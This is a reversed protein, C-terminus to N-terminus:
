REPTLEFSPLSTAPEYVLARRVSSLREQGRSSGSGNSGHPSPPAAPVVPVRLNAFAARATMFAPPPPLGIGGANSNNEKNSTTSSSAVNVVNIAAGPPTHENASSSGASAHSSRAWVEFQEDITAHESTSALADSDTQSPVMNHRIPSSGGPLAIGLFHSSFPHDGASSVSKSSSADTFSRRVITEFEAPSADQLEEEMEGEGEMSSGTYTVASHDCQGMPHSPPQLPPPPHHLRHNHQKQEVIRSLLLDEHSQASVDSSDTSVASQAVAARVGRAQWAKESSPAAACVATAAQHRAVATGLTREVWAPRLMAAPPSVVRPPLPPLREDHLPLSEPLPSFPERPSFLGEPQERPSGFTGSGFSGTANDRTASLPPLTQQAPSQVPSEGLSDPLLAPPRANEDVSLPLPQGIGGTPLPLQQASRSDVLAQVASPPRKPKTQPSIPPYPLTELPPLAEAAVEADVEPDTTWSSEVSSWVKPPRWRDDDEAVPPAFSVEVESRPSFPTVPRFPTASRPAAGPAPTLPRAIVEMEAEAAAEAADQRAAVEALALSTNSSAVARWARKEAEVEAHVHAEYDAEAEAEREAEMEDAAAEVALMHAVEAIEQPTPSATRAKSHPSGTSLTLPAVKPSPPTRPPQLMLTRAAKAAAMELASRSRWTSAARRERARHLSRLARALSQQQWGHVARVLMAQSRTETRLFGRWRAVCGRVRKGFGDARARREIRQANAVIRMEDFARRTAKASWRSHAPRVRLRLNMVRSVTHKLLVRLAARMAQYAHFRMAAHLFRALRMRRHACDRMAAIGSRGGRRVVALQQVRRVAVAASSAATARLMRRFAVKLRRCRAVDVRAGCAARVGRWAAWTQMASQLLRHRRRSRLSSGAPPSLAGSAAAFARWRWLAHLRHRAALERFAHLARGRLESAHQAGAAVEKSGKIGRALAVRLMVHRVSLARAALHAKAATAAKMKRLERKLASAVAMANATGGALGHGEQRDVQRRWAHLEILLRRKRNADAQIFRAATAMVWLCMAGRSNLRGGIHRVRKLRRRSAADRSWMRVAARKAAAESKARGTAAAHATAHWARLLLLLQARSHCRHALASAKRVSAFLRESNAPDHMLLQDMELEVEADGGFVNATLLMEREDEHDITGDTNHAVVRYATRSRKLKRLERRMKGASRRHSVGRWDWLARAISRRSACSAGLSLSMRGRHMAAAASRWRGLATVVTRWTVRQSLHAAVGAHRIPPPNNIRALRPGRRQWLHLAISARAALTSSEPAAARLRPDAILEGLTAARADARAIAADSADSRAKAAYTRWMKIGGDLARVHLFKNVANFLAAEAMSRRAHRLLVRYARGLPLKTRAAVTIKRTPSIKHQKRWVHFAKDVAVHAFWQPPLVRRRSAASWLAYAADLEKQVRTRATSRVAARRETTRRRAPVLAALAPWATNLRRRTAHADALAARLKSTRADSAALLLARIVPHSALLRRRTSITNTVEAAYWRRWTESKLVRFAKATRHLDARLTFRRNISSRCAIARWTALAAIRRLCRAPPAPLAPPNAKAFWAAFSAKLLRLNGRRCCDAHVTAIATIRRLASSQLQQANALRSRSDHGHRYPLARSRAELERALVVM